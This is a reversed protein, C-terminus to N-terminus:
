IKLHELTPIDPAYINIITGGRLSNIGKSNDLSKPQSKAGIKKKIWDAIRQGKISFISLYVSVVAM